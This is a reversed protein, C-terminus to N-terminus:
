LCVPWDFVQGNKHAISGVLFFVGVVFLKLFTTKNAAADGPFSSSLSSFITQCQITGVSLTLRLRNRCFPQQATEAALREDATSALTSSAVNARGACPVPLAMPTHDLGGPPTLTNEVGAKWIIHFNPSLESLGWLCQCQEM